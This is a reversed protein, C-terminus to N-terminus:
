GIWCGMSRFLKHGLYYGSHLDQARLPSYFFLSNENFICTCTSWLLCVSVLLLEWLLHLSRRWSLRTQRAIVRSYRIRCYSNSRLVVSVQNRYSMVPWNLPKETQLPRQKRWFTPWCSKTTFEMPLLIKPSPRYLLIAHFWVPERFYSLNILLIFQFDPVRVFIGSSHTPLFCATRQNRAWGM